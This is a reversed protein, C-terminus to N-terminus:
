YLKIHWPQNIHNIFPLGERKHPSTYSPHIPPIFLTLSLSHPLLPIPTHDLYLAFLLKILLLLLFLFIELDQAM